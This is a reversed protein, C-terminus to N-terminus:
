AGRQRLPLKLSLRTEKLPFSSISVQGGHKEVIKRVTALGVGHGPRSNEQRQFLRFPDKKQALEFGIGFDTFTLSLHTQTEKADIHIFVDQDLKAFKVANSFLNYFLQALLIPDAQLSTQCGRHVLHIVTDPYADKVASEVKTLLAQLDVEEWYVEKHSATAYDLLRDILDSMEQRTKDLGSLLDNVAQMHGQKREEELLLLYSKIAKLPAKLDHSVTYTFAELEETREQVREELHLNLKALKGLAQKLEEERKLLQDRNYLTREVFRATVGAMISFFFTFLIASLKLAPSLPLLDSITSGGTQAYSVVLFVLGTFLLGLFVLGLIVRSNYAAGKRQPLNFFKRLSPLLLLVDSFALLLAEVFIGKLAFFLIISKDMTQYAQPNWFPPNLKLLAQFFLLYLALRILSYILQILYPQYSKAEKKRRRKQAAYGQLFVWLYLSFAPLISAWGNYPGLFFPYLFVGGVTVTFLGYIHGWSLSVLMVLVLSWPFNISVQDFRLTTTMILGVSSLWGLLLCVGWKYAKHSKIRLCYDKISKIKKEIKKDM